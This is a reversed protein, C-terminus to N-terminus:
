ELGRPSDDRYEDFACCVIASRPDDALNCGPRRLRLRRSLEWPRAHGGARSRDSEGGAAIRFRTLRRGFTEVVYLWTGTPDPRVENTYHLGEAVIRAGAHDLLVIFGDAVDPRWAEHRRQYRTSVSVWTRPGDIVVFNAPPVPTGEVETLFPELAGDRHLRWVGGQTASTPSCFRVTRQWPSAM